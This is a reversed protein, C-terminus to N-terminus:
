RTTNSPKRGYGYDDLSLDIDLIWRRAKDIYLAVVDASLHIANIVNRDFWIKRLDIVSSGGIKVTIKKAPVSSDKAYKRVIAKLSVWDVREKTTMIIVGDKAYKGYSKVSDNQYGIIHGGAINSLSFYLKPVDAYKFKKGDIILLINQDKWPAPPDGYTTKAQSPLLGCQLPLKQLTQAKLLFVFLSFFATVFHKPNM